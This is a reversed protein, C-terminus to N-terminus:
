GDGTQETGGDWNEPHGGGAEKQSRVAKSYSLLDESPGRTRPAASAFIIATPITELGRFTTSTRIFPNKNQM